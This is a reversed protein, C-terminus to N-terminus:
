DGFSRPDSPLVVHERSLHSVTPCGLLALTRDIEARLLDIACSVGDEGNAALAFLTSRGLFVATAGLALAKVIDSGRRFGGDIFVPIRADIEAVVAPLLEIPAMSSDLMIAGHNSVIIGDVGQRVCLAADRPDAIGKVILKGHWLNRILELTGWDLSADKMAVPGSWPRRKNPIPYNPLHGIGGNIWYRGMTGVLWRPHRMFDWLNRVTPKFPLTFGSRIAFERNPPVIADATLVLVKFGAEAARRLTALSLERDGSMYFQFWKPGSGGQRLVEEMPMAAAASLIMPIGARSAALALAVEGQFWLHGAPGTPAIGIPVSLSEGFVDVSQSRSSVDVLVRPVLRIRELARRNRRLASDDENGRDIYDFLGRPLRDRALARFDGINLAKLKVASM